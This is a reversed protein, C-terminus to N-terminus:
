QPSAKPALADPPTVDPSRAPAEYWKAKPVLKADKPDSRYAPTMIAVGYENFLDLINRHLEHYGQLTRQADNTYANLEYNIAFDGLKTQLVFPAPDALVSKTRAAAALLMAEVQRWPTDYGIGVTTHLILGNTRAFSSLNTVNTNLILSNPIVVEENKLTRVHTVQLRMEIVDGHVDGIQIRDGVRFARCYTIMYGAVINAVASSSGLSLLVGAFLSIGKFAASDAGPIHPYAVVLAFVVVALRVLKYTPLSWEPEFAHLMVNGNEVADFFLRLLPLAFRALLALIVLFFLNPIIGIYGVGM